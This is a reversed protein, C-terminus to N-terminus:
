NLIVGDCSDILEDSSYIPYDAWGDHPKYAVVKNDSSNVISFNQNFYGFCVAGLETGYKTIFYNLSM